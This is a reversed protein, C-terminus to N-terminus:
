LTWHAIERTMSRVLELQPEPKVLSSGLAVSMPDFLFPHRYSTAHTSSHFLSHPVMHASVHVGAHACTPAGTREGTWRRAWRNVWRRTKAQANKLDYKLGSYPSLCSCTWAWIRAEFIVKFVRLRFRAPSHVPSRAPSCTLTCAPMCTFTRAPLNYTCANLCTCAIGWPTKPCDYKVSVAHKFQIFVLYM